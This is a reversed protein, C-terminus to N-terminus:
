ADPTVSVGLRGAVYRRAARSFSLGTVLLFRGIFWCVILKWLGLGVHLTIDAWGDTWSSGWWMWLRSQAFESVLEWFHILSAIVLVSFFLACIISYVALLWTVSPALGTQHTWRDVKRGTLERLIQNLARLAESRLNDTRLLDSIVWYGDLRMLPNLNWLMSVATASAVILLPYNETALYAVMLAHVCIGQMFIGGLNIGIRERIPFRWIESLDAYAVPFVTYWGVGISVKRAGKRWAAAAHGLEHLLLVAAGLALTFLIGEADISDAKQGATLANLMLLIGTVGLSWGLVIGPLSFLPSLCRAISNVLAPPLLPVMAAMYRPKAAQARAYVPESHEHVVIGRELCDDRVSAILKAVSEVSWGASALKACLTKPSTPQYLLLLAHRLSGSVVMRHVRGASDDLELLWDDGGRSDFPYLRVKPNLLWRTERCPADIM